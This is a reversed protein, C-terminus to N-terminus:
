VYKSQIKEIKLIIKPEKGYVKRSHFLAIRSDNEYLLKEMADFLGKNLNDTVDPKTDKLIFGGQELYEKDKKSMGKLPPFVYTVHAELPGSFPIFGIPLHEKAQKILERNYKGYKSNQYFVVEGTHKNIGQRVSQKPLALINFILIM